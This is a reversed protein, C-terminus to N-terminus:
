KAGRINTMRRVESGPCNASDIFFQIKKGPVLKTSNRKSVSFTKIGRCGKNQLDVVVIKTKPDVNTVIGTLFMREPNPAALAAGSVTGIFFVALFLIFVRKVSSM